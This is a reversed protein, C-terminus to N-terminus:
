ESKVWVVEPTIGLLDAAVVEHADTLAQVYSGMDVVTIPGCGNTRMSSLLADLKAYDTVGGRTVVPKGEAIM